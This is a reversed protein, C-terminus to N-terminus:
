LHLNNGLDPQLHKCEPVLLTSQCGVSQTSQRLQQGYQVGGTGLPVEEVVGGVKEQLEGRATGVIVPADKVLREGVALKLDTRTHPESTM